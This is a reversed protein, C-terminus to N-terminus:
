PAAPKTARICIFGPEKILREYDETELAKFEDLPVPELIQDLLFGAAILPNIM